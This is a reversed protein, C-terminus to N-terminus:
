QSFILAKMTDSTGYFPEFKVSLGGEKYLKAFSSGQAYAYGMNPVYPQEVTSGTM